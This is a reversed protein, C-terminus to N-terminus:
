TKERDGATGVRYRNCACTLSFRYNDHGRPALGRPGGVQLPVHFLDAPCLRLDDGLIFESSRFAAGADEDPWAQCRAPYHIELAKLGFSKQTSLAAAAM